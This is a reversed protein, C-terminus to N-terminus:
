QAPLNQIMIGAVVARKIAASSNAVAGQLAGARNGVSTEWDKDKREKAFYVSYRTISCTTLIIRKEEMSFQTNSLVFAEFSVILQHIVSYENPEWLLMSAMFISLYDKATPTLPSNAIAQELEIQANDIIQQIEGYIIPSSTELNLLDNNLASISDVRQSIEAITSLAPNAGLYVELIDNHIKGAMDYLNATNQPSRLMKGAKTSEEKATSNDLNKTNEIDESSCSALLTTIIVATSLLNKM